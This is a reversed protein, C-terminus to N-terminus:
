IIKCYYVISLFKQEEITLKNDENDEKDKLKFIYELLELSNMSSYFQRFLHINYFKEFSMIDDKSGIKDKFDLCELCNHQERCKNICEENCYQLNLASNGLTPIKDCSAIDYFSDGNYFIKGCELNDCGGTIEPGFVHENYLQRINNKLDPNKEEIFKIMQEVEKLWEKEDYCPQEQQQSDDYSPPDEQYLVM